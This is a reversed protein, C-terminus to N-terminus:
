LFYVFFKGVRRNTKSRFFSRPTEPIAFSKKPSPIFFVESFPYNEYQSEFSEDTFLDKFDEKLHDKWTDSQSNQESEQSSATSKSYQGSDSSEESSPSFKKKYISWSEFPNLVEEKCRDPCDQTKDPHCLLIRSRVLDKIQHLNYIEVNCCLLQCLYAKSASFDM